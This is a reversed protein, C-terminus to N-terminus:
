NCRIFTHSNNFVAASGASDVTHFNELIGQCVWLSSDTNVTLVHSKSNSLNLIIRIPSNNSGLGSFIQRIVDNPGSMNAIVDDNNEKTILKLDDEDINDINPANEYYEIIMFRAKKDTTHEFDFYTIEDRKTPYIRM